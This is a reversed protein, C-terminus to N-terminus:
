EPSETSDGLVMGGVLEGPEGDWTWDTIRIGGDGCAVVPTKEAAVVTGPEEGKFGDVIEGAWVMLKYGDAFTFAGPYPRTVARVLNRIDEASAAWNIEGDEPHRAPYYTAEDENQATRPVDGQQFYKLVRRTLSDYLPYLKELADSIDEDSRIPVREQAIIDGADVDEEAFHATLGIEDEGEIIAWNVSARGRYKPLLSPHLNVAGLPPVELVEPPVIYRYDTIWLLDPNRNAIWDTFGDDAPKRRTLDWGAQKAHDYVSEYRVGDEPDPPHAVVGAVTAVDAIARITRVGVTHNGLFVVRPPSNM